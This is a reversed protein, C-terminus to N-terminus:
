NITIQKPKEKEPKPLLISLVGEEFNAEVKDIDVQFPIKVTRDFETNRRELRHISAEKNYEIKRKGSIRLLDNKVELNLDEKKLGPLEATVRIDEGEEFANVAPYAGYCSTGSGFFSEGRANEMAEQLALLTDLARSLGTFM